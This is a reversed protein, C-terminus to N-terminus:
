GYMIRWREAVSRKGAVAVLAGAASNAVDDTGNSGHDVRDKGARSTRRELSVLQHVLRQNDLLRVRGSTFLPLCDLYIASRDRESQVYRIGVKRFVEVTWEAAYRDGTVETIRYSRLLEAIEAVVTSPDFPARREYICDLIATRNMNEAHAIGATFSDGRGGSPDTFSLYRVGPRPPRVIVGQDVADRILGQDLFDSLDSRWESLWEAAAADPDRALAADIVHQPLSPNFATSPGRVVLIDNDDKGFNARWKDFLLGSRRYATSIGILVAGPLTVLGPLLANYTEVDPAASDESRFFAVEDLIVALITRGRVARYSNTAVIIEVGNTLELGQDTERAILPQLLPNQQFYGVIYRLVIRAQDRDVALCMVTAREGPRLYKRHDGIAAVAAVASAISDKGSRRGAIVWLERVPRSPPDRDAVQRFLELEVVDLLEGFAAKLIARWRNWSPGAFYAALLAPDSIAAAPTLM